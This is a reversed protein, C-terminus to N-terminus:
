NSKNQKDVFYVTFENSLEGYYLLIMRNKGRELKIETRNIVGM